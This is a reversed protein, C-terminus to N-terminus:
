WVTATTPVLNPLRVPTREARSSPHLNVLAQWDGAHDVFLFTGLPDAVGLYSSQAAALVLRRAPVRAVTAAVSLIHYARQVTTTLFVVRYRPREGLRGSDVWSCLLQNQYADYLDLRHQLSADLPSAVTETGQDVEFAVNFARGGITFRFFCDPQVQEDGVPFALENERYFREVAFGRDHAAGLTHVIIEALRLTHAFHSPAIAAFYARPPLEVEGYLAQYGAPTLKYYNQLGGNGSAAAWSRTFGAQGLAQLRERLRREDAFPGGDFTRSVPVLLAATAPTWSLLRLLARDRPSLSVATTM